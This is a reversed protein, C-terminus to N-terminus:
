KSPGEARESLTRVPFDRQAMRYLAEWLELTVYVSVDREKGKIFLGFEDSDHDTYEIHITGHESDDEEDFFILAGIADVGLRM